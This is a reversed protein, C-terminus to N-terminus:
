ALLDKLEGKNLAANIESPSANSVWATDKQEVADPKGEGEVGELKEQFRGDKLAQNIEAPTMGALNHIQSKDSVSVAELLRKLNKPDQLTSMFTLAKLPDTAAEREQLADITPELKRYWERCCPGWSGDDAQVVRPQGVDQM